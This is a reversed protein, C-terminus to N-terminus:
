RKNFTMKSRKPNFLKIIERMAKRTARTNDRSYSCTYLDLAAKKNEPETHITFHSEGLGIMHTYAGNPFPIPLHGMVTFGHNTIIQTIKDIVLDPEILLRYEDTRIDGFIHTGGFKAM